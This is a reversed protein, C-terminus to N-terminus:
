IGGCAVGEFGRAQPESARAPQGSQGLQLAPLPDDIYRFTTYIGPPPKGFWAEM